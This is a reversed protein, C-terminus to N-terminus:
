NWAWAFATIQWEDAVERVAATLYGTRSTPTGNELWRAEVPVVLYAAGDSVILHRPEELTVSWDAMGFGAAMGSMDRYWRTAAGDGTWQFPPFDDIISTDGACAAQAQDVDDHNFGEVFRHIAFMPGTRESGDM